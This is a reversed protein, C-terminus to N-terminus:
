PTEKLDLKLRMVLERVKPDFESRVIAEASVKTQNNELALRQMPLGKDIWKSNCKENLKPDDLGSSARRLLDRVLRKDNFVVSPHVARTSDTYREEFMSASATQSVIDMSIFEKVLEVYHLFEHALVLRVTSQAGYLLLPASLQVVITVTGSSQVPITRAYLVGLGESANGTPLVVTLIPEVYYPPYDIGSAAEVKDVNEALRKRKSIISKKTKKDIASSNEVKFFADM